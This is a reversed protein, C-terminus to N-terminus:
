KKEKYQYVTYLYWTFVIIIYLWQYLNCIQDVYNIICIVFKKNYEKYYYIITFIKYIAEICIIM